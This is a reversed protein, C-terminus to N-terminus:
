WTLHNSEVGDAKVWVHYGRWGYVCVATTTSSTSYTYFPATSFPYPDDAYCSITHSGSAFNSLTVVVKACASSTCGTVTTAGGKSVTVSRADGSTGGAGGDNGGNPCATTSASITALGSTNGAADRARVGLTYTTGCHLGTFTYSTGGVPAVDSGDIFVDYGSVGQSESSANWNLVLSSETQGSLSLGGPASPPSTDPPPTTAHALLWSKNLLQWRGSNLGLSPVTLSVGANLSGTLKWWPTYRTDANADLGANLDVAPGGVGYLLLSVQVGAQGRLDGNAYPSPARYSASSSLSHFSSFNGNIYSLGATQTFSHTVSTDVHGGLYASASIFYEIKPTVWVPWPGIFVRFSRLWLPTSLLATKGISCRVNADASADLEATESASATFTAGDVHKLIRGGWHAQLQVRPSVSLTGGVAIRGSAGCNGNRSLSHWLWGLPVDRAAASGKALSHARTSLPGMRPAATDASSDSGDSADPDAPDFLGPTSSDSTGTADGAADPPTTVVDDQTLQQDVSIDGRPFADTLVAPRTEVVTEGSSPTIADVTALLGYPTAPGPDIVLIDGVQLSAAASSALTLTVGTDPSGAAETVALPSVPTIADSVVTYYDVTSNASGGPAVTATTDSVTPLYNDGGADVSKASIAYDGAPVDLTVTRTAEFSGYAGAASMEAATDAPLDTATLMLRGHAFMPAFAAAHGQTKSPSQPPPMADGYSAVRGNEGLLWYGRGTPSPAIAISRGLQGSGNISVRRFVEADGFGTVTGDSSALWYGGGDATRAIATVDVGVPAGPGILNLAAASGFPYVHGDSGALWYGGGDPTAAIGVIQTGPALQGQASGLNAADGYAYVAGDAGSLWYGAGDPTVAIGVIRTSDSPDVNASGLPAADGFPAVGGDAGVIWYGQGTPTGALAVVPRKLAKTSHADGLSSTQGSATIQGDASVSLWGIPIASVSRAATAAGASVTLAIAISTVALLAISAACRSARCVRRLVGTVM